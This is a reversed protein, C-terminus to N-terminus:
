MRGVLRSRDVKGFKHEEIPMGRNDGIVLYENPGMSQEKLNWGIDNKLYPEDLPVGDIHVVGGRIDVKEGPLGIVRKLFMIKKGAMRVVVVDLRKPDSWHYSLANVFGFDGTEYLPLMSDGQVMFPLFAKTCVTYAVIGIIAARIVTTRWNSGVCM